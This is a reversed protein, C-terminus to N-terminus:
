YTHTGEIVGKLEVYERCETGCISRVTALYDLAKLTNGQESHWMCYYSWTRAHRPDAALAKEYWIKSDGYRGLKRSSYGILNAVDANDDHKLARLQAIGTEYDHDTYITKYAAKYGGIFEQQSQQQKKAKKTKKKAPTATNAPPTATSAKPAAPPTAPTETGISYSATPAALALGFAAVAIVTEIRRLQRM